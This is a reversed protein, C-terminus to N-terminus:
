HNRGAQLTRGFLFNSSRILFTTVQKELWARSKHLRASAAYRSIGDLLIIQIHPPQGQFVNHAAELRQSLIQTGVSQTLGLVSRCRSWYRLHSCFRLGCCSRGHWMWLVISAPCQFNSHTCAHPHTATNTCVSVERQHAFKPIPCSSHNVTVNWLGFQRALHPPANADFRGIKEIMRKGESTM